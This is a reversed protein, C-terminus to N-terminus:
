YENMISCFHLRYNQSMTYVFIKLKYFRFNKNHFIFCCCKDVEKIPISLLSWGGPVILMLDVTVLFSVAGSRLRLYKKYSVSFNGRSLEHFIVYKQKPCLCFQSESPLSLKIQPRKAKMQLGNLRGVNELASICHPPRQFQKMLLISIVVAM